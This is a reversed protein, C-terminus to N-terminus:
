PLSVATWTTGGDLTRWLGVSGSCGTAATCNNHRSIAWGAAASVFSLERTHAPLTPSTEGLLWQQPNIVQAPARVGPGVAQALTVAEALQWTNGGNATTYIEVRSADPRSVTVAIAGGGTANFVPPAAAPLADGWGAALSVPQWSQGGDRTRYLASRTPGGVLWGADATVFNIPGGLPASLEQWSQGGDSTKFLRGQSFNLGTDLEALLWGTDASIFDFHVARFPQEIGPLPALPQWSAGGNTTRWLTPQGAAGDVGALWGHTEDQFYVGLLTEARPPTINQWQGGGNRTLYLQEDLWLWGTSPSLLKAERLSLTPQGSLAVLGAAVNNDVNLAVGDWSETHSGSYQFLRHEPWYAPDIYLENLEQVTALPNYDSYLYRAVWTSDPIHELTYWDNTATVGGYIGAQHGQAHMEAVWGTLFANTATHCATNNVDYNEMDYYIILPSYLGLANAASIAQQAQLTGEARATTPDYSVRNNFVSCPAQPGVWTPIFQWGQARVETLWQPTQHQQNYSKCPAYHMSGGLYIGLYEYDTAQKWTALQATTPAACTDFGQGHSVLMSPTVTPTATITPTATVTPTATIAPTTTLTPTTTITPTATPPPPQREVIPLYVRYTPTIVDDSPTLTQAAADVALWAPLLALIAWGLTLIAIVSVQKIM